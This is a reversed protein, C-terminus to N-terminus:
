SLDHRIGLKTENQKIIQVGRKIQKLENKSVSTSLNVLGLVYVLFGLESLSLGQQRLKTQCLKILM